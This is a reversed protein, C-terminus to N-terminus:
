GSGILDDFWHLLGRSPTEGHVIGSQGNIIVRQAQEKLKVTTMWVPVLVLQFSEIAIKSPSYRLEQVDGEGIAIGTRIREVAMRRAELAADSMALEHVEAPWGALYRPDFAIAARLSYGSLIKQALGALKSTAPVILDDYHISERGSVAVRQKDRYKIGNWPIEGMAEFVWMPLYVGLLAQVKGQPKLKNAEVWHVLHQTAQERDFAM